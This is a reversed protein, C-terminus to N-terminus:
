GEEGALSTNGRGHSDFQGVVHPGYRLSVRGDLHEHITVTYGALMSRFRSKEIQWIREGMAVHQGQCCRTRSAGHVGLGSGIPEFAALRESETRGSSQVQPQVRQYLARALIPEGRGARRNGGTPTRAAIAGAVDRLETGLARASTSFLGSDDTCGIGEPSKGGPKLRDKDVPEGAKPTLFFHSGRDSYLACFLGKTEIVERLGAM